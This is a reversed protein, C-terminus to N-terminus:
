RLLEGFSALAYAAVSQGVHVGVEDATRSHIGSWVRADVNDRTLEQWSRYTVTLGPATPSAVTFPRKARAGVLATLVGEAAGAYSAHGSPYDPHAPTVHLPTWGAEGSARIETVPRWALYAYKADSTAIQTDM